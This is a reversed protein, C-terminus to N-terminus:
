FAIFSIFDVKKSLLCIKKKKHFLLHNKILELVIKLFELVVFFNMDFFFLFTLLILMLKIEAFIKRKQTLTFLKQTLTLLKKLSLFNIKPKQLILTLFQDSFILIKRIKM